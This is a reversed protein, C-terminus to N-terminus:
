FAGGDLDDYVLTTGNSQLVKGNVAVSLKSIGSTANGVLIDGIAYSSFGLGGSSYGLPTSLTLSNATINVNVTSNATIYVSTANSVLAGSSLYSSLTAIEYTSNSTDVTSTPNVQLGKFLKWVGDTADRFLGTHEHAGGGTNYAGYLGIDVTDDVTNNGALQILSDTISLTSVNISVLTGTITLNGTISVNGNFNGNWVDVNYAYVNNWRLNSDGLNYTVNANPVIATNVRSVFSVVDNISSNGLQTNGRVLLDNGVTTNGVLTINNANVDGTTNLGLYNINAYATSNGVLVASTNLSVNAGVAISTNVVISNSISVQINQNNFAVTIQNATGSVTHNEWQGSAADYVLLDNNAASSITVDTLEDIANASYDDVYKKVIWAPALQNNSATALTADLTISSIYRETNGTAGIALNSTRTESVFSNGDTIVVANSTLTGPVSTNSQHLWVYKGGAIRTVTNAGGPMGIFLSNSTSNGSYALEGNALSGPTATTSSRRIQFITNSM